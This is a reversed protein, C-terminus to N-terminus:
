ELASVGEQPQGQAREEPAATIAPGGKRRRLLLVSAIIAAVVVAGVGLYLIMDSDDSGKPTFSYSTLVYTGGGDSSEYVSKVDGGVAESYWRTEISEGDDVQIVECDFNGAPVTITDRGIYRYIKTETSSYSDSTLYYSEYTTIESHTTHMIFWIAGETMEDPEVGIGGPPSYTTISHVWIEIFISGDGVKFSMSFNTDSRITDLTDVDVSYSGTWTSTGEVMPMGLYEGEALFSGDRGFSYVDYTLGAVTETKVEDVSFTTTGTLTVSGMDMTVDYVWEDGIEYFGSDNTKTNNSALVLIGMFVLCTVTVVRAM